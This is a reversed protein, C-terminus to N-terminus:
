KKNFKKEEEFTQPTERSLNHQDCYAFFLGSYDNNIGDSVKFGIKPLIEKLEEESAEIEIFDGLFPLTHVEIKLGELEYNVQKKEKIRYPKYGLHEFLEQIKQADSVTTEIEKRELLFDHTPKDLLEKYTVLAERGHGYTRVRLVKQADFFGKGDDYMEDHSFFESIKKAGLSELKDLFEVKNPLKIKVEIEKNDKNM